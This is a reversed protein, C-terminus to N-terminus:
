GRDVRVGGSGTDIRLTGRGDGISGELHTRGSRRVTVPMDFHIGGSGTDVLVDAGFDAPLRLRVGGSGTDIRVTEADARLGLEVSGSGSDLDVDTATVGDLRVGGSGVDVRLTRVALDSGTVGGSGTDLDVMDGQVRSVRVGGSGADVKVSGRAGDVTVGGSGVDVDLGGRTDRTDVAASATRVVLDGNVNAVTVRGVAQHLVVSRGAPVVLRADAWAHTGPGYAAITVSRSGAGTGLSGDRRVHVTSSSLRGMREYVVRRDPYAVRVGQLGGDSFREVRLDGADGGGRTVEVVVDGAGGAEVRVEGALNYFAVRSGALSFRQAAAPAGGLALAALLAAARLTTLRGARVHM